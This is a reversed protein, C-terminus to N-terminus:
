NRVIMALMKSINVYGFFDFYVYNDLFHVAFGRISPAKLTILPKDDGSNRTFDIFVAAHILIETM